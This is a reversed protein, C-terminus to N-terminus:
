LVEFICIYKLASRKTIPVLGLVGEGRALVTVIVIHVGLQQLRPSLLAPPTIVAQGSHWSQGEGLLTVALPPLEPHLVRTTLGANM